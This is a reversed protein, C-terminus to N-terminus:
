STQGSPISLTLNVGDNTNQPHVLSMIRMLCTYHNGVGDIVANFMVDPGITVGSSSILVMGEPWVGQLLSCHWVVSFPSMIGCTSKCHEISCYLAEDMSFVVGEVISVDCKAYVEYTM